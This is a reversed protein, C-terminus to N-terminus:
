PQWSAQLASFPVGEIVFTPTKGDQSVAVNLPTTSVSEIM